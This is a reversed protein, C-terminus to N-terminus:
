WTRGKRFLRDAEELAVRAASVRPRHWAAVEHEFRLSVLARPGRQRLRPSGVPSRGARADAVCGGVVVHVACPQSRSGRTGCNGADHVCRDMRGSPARMRTQLCSKSGYLMSVRRGTAAAVAGSDVPAAYVGALVRGHVDNCSFYQAENETLPVVEGLNLKELQLAPGASVSFETRPRAHMRRGLTRMFNRRGVKSHEEPVQVAHCSSCKM